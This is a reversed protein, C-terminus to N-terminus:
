PSVAGLSSNQNRAKARSVLQIGKPLDGLRETSPKMRQLFSIGIGLGKIQM